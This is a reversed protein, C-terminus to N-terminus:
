EGGIRMVALGAAAPVFAAVCGFVLMGIGLWGGDVGLLLGRLPADTAILGAATVAGGLGGACLHPLVYRLLEMGRFRRVVMIRSGM